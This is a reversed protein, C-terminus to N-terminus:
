GKGELLLQSFRGAHVYRCKGIRRFAPALGNNERCRYLWELQARNFNPHSRPFDDLTQWQDLDGNPGLQVQM